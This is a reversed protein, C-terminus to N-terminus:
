PRAGLATLMGMAARIGLDLQSVRLRENPAHIADDNEAFGTLLPVIGRAALAAMIPISGGSRIVAVRMGTATETGAVAKALWPDDASVLAPDAEGLREITVEAGAPAAALIMEDLIPAIESSRQGPALRLSLTATATAPIVTKVASPEGSAIGHVDITPEFGTRLHFEAAAAADAPRLGAQKLMSAGGPIAEWSALELPSPAAAGARLPEALRGDTPTLSGFITMLAHNANMAAGGYLGSHGDRQASRVTIRRYVLGRVGACFAPRDPAAMSSDYILCCDAGETDGDLWRHASEGGCEEEGEILFRVHVPLEGAARLRQVAVLLMFLNGKDDSAGRAYVHDGRVTPEFPPSVWEALDGTPQVDYHGYILVTPADERDVSAAVRGVVLPHGGNNVIEAAGGAVLIEHAILSAARDMDAAYEPLASISPM